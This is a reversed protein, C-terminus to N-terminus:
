LPVKFAPEGDSELNTIEARLTARRQQSESKQSPRWAAGRRSEYGSISDFTIQGDNYIAPCSLRSAQGVMFSAEWEPVKGARIFWARSKPNLEM